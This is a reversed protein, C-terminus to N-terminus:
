ILRQTIIHYNQLQQSKLDLIARIRQNGNEVASASPDIGAGTANFFKCLDELKVGNGCGVELIANINEKYSELVRKITDTEYHQIKNRLTSENREFWCDGESELFIKSQNLSVNSIMM